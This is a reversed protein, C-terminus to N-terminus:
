AVLRPVAIADAMATAAANATPHIGDTTYAAKWIGADRSPEVADATDFYGVYGAVSGARIAANVTVRVSEGTTPTQNATTAWADTSTTRPPVTCLYADVGQDALAQGITALDALIQAATRSSARDNTGLMVVARNCRGWWRHAQKRNAAAALTQAQLGSSGLLIYPYDDNIAGWLFPRDNGFGNAEMISDGVFAICRQTPDQVLPIIASPAYVFEFGSSISGSTTKDTVSTGREVGDGTEQIVISNPWRDGSAVQVFQRSWFYDGATINLFLPDSTTTGGPELVVDRKGNFYLPWYTGSPYEIAARVTIQDTGDSVLNYYNGYEVRFGNSLGQPARHRVKSNEATDTANSFQAKAQGATRTAMSVPKLSTGATDSLAKIQGGLEAASM